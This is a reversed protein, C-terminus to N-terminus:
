GAPRTSSRQGADTLDRPGDSGTLDPPVGLLIPIGSLVMVPAPLALAILAFVILCAIIVGRVYPPQVPM